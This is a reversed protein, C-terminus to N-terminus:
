WPIPKGDWALFAIPRDLPCASALDLAKTAVFTPEQLQGPPMSKQFPRSLPTNTSGPHFSIFRVGNAIRGYELAATKLLMNLAAKSARYSYWGGRSNDAISGVRASFVTIVCDQRSTMLSKLHKLWLLPIGANIGMIHQFSELTFEELRKEPTITDDHLVGQCIFIRAIRSRIEHLSSVFKAISEEDYDTQIWTQKQSKAADGLQDPQARRSIAIVEWNSDSATLQRVLEIAIHSSAGIVLAIPSEPMSM